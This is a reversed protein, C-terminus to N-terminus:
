ARPAARAVPEPRSRMTTARGDLLTLLADAAQDAEGRTGLVYLAGTAAARAAELVAAPRSRAAIAHALLALAADGASGSVLESDAGTYATVAIVAVDAPAAGVAGLQEPEVEVQALVGPERVSLRKAYPHVRGHRDLVAFEDSFYTAGARVLAAVLTTKGSLSAGPLVLARGEWAVVGAHVFVHQPANLAVVSRLASDLASLAAVEGADALLTLGDASLQGGAGLAFRSIVSAADGAEWGPPLLAEVKPLLEPADVVVEVTVGHSTFVLAHM